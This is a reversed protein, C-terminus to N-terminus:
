WSVCLMFHFCCAARKQSSPRIKLHLYWRRWGPCRLHGWIMPIKRAQGGSNGIKFWFECNALLHQYQIDICSCTKYFNIKPLRYVEPLIFVFITQFLFMVNHLIFNSSCLLSVLDFFSQSLNSFSFLCSLCNTTFLISSVILSYTFYLIHLYIQYKNFSFKKRKWRVSKMNTPRDSPSIQFYKHIHPLFVIQWAAGDGCGSSVPGSM